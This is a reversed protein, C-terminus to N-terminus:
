DGPAAPTSIPRVYISDKLGYDYPNGVVEIPHDFNHVPVPSPLQFEPSRSRWPNAAAKEGYSASYILNYIMLAIGLAIVFAAITVALQGTTIGLAADYDAVRRRMGLLGVQMQGLTQVSFGVFQLWFHWKGMRENYMRGTLKPFWYYLAAMFPFVFGGFLTAHFHGVVFYTDHTYLDTSVLANPPGSLGGVLFIMIAGLAFLMPTPFILKGQWLTATWSFFKVGTPVAVLLTSVMFPVRLYEQMGSTFMHHAWVLYGVLAIGVSSLAVWKYGYLPKRAFVPLVESIVGLGPLVFVYVAPHSYFWFLHQYLIVDGGKAIDFFGMDMVRQLLGMLFSLGILQTAAFQILATALSAWVFVPMKFMGMGKARMKLITVIINIAGLIGSFGFLYVGLYFTVMGLPARTSLPPYGVWGTDVGGLPLAALLLLGSPVTIWFSFGNLRPFAMDQAGIMLPVLYNMMAAICLLIAAVMVMGHLSFMTNFGTLGALSEVEGTFLQLGPAALEWRFILAFTGALLFLILGFVGYQVGIVKHDVSFGLYRQLPSWDPNDHTHMGLPKGSAARYWDTLSGVGIMFAITGLIGGVTWAADPNWISLGLALRVVSVLAMGALTGIVMALLGRVLGYKFLDKM